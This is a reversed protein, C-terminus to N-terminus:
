PNDDASARTITIYRAYKAHLPEHDKQVEVAPAVHAMSLVLKMLRAEKEDFQGLPTKDLLDLAAPVLDKGTNFFAVRDSEQSDLRALLRNNAGDIAWSEVFPELAEFGAPLLSETRNM